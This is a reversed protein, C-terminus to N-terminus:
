TSRSGSGASRMEHASIVLCHLSRLANLSFATIHHSFALQFRRASSRPAHTRAHAFWVQLSLIAAVAFTAEYAAQVRRRDSSCGCFFVADLTLTARLPDYVVLTSAARRHRLTDVRTVALRPQLGRAARQLLNAGGAPQKLSASAAATSCIFLAPVKHCSELAEGQPLGDGVQFWPSRLTLTLTLPLLAAAAGAHGLAHRVYRLGHLAAAERQWRAATPNPQTPNPQTQPTRHHLHWVQLPDLLFSALRLSDISCPM